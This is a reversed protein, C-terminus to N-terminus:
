DIFPDSNQLFAKKFSSHLCGTSVKLLTDYRWGDSYLLILSGQSEMEGWDSHGGHLFYIVVSALSSAPKSSESM